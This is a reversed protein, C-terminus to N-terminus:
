PRAENFAAVFAARSMAAAKAVTASASQRAQKRRKDNDTQAMIQHTLQTVAQKPKAILDQHVEAATKPKLCPLNTILTIIPILWEIFGAKDSEGVATAVAGAFKTVRSL